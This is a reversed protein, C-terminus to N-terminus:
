EHNNNEEFYFNDKLWKQIKTIKDQDWTNQRLKELDNIIPRVIRQNNKVVLDIANGAILLVKCDFTEQRMIVLRNRSIFYKLNKFM